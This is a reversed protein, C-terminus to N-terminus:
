CARWRRLICGATGVLWATGVLVRSSSSSWDELHLLRPLPCLTHSVFFDLPSLRTQEDRIKRYEEDRHALNDRALRLEERLQGEVKRYAEVEQQLQTVRCCQPVAGFFCSAPFSLLFYWVLSLSHDSAAVSVGAQRHIGVRRMQCLHCDGGQFSKRAAPHM